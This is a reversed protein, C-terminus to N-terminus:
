RHMRSCWHTLQFARLVHKLADRYVWYGEAFYSAGLPFAFLAVRASRAVAATSPPTISRRSATLPTASPSRQFLPEGLQAVVVAPPAARWQSAGQYLAYEYSPIAGTFNEKPTMYAPTFKSMGAWSLGYKDLWGRDSGALLGAKHTVVIAGGAAVYAHLRGALKADVELEESLIVMRYREWPTGPEVIDFQVRCETLLKTWGLHADTSPRELPLGSVV